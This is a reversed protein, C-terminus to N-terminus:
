LSLLFVDGLHRAGQGGAREVLSVGGWHQETGGVPRCPSPLPDAWATAGM